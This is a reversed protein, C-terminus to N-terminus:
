RYHARPGFPHRAAGLGWLVLGLSILVIGCLWLVPAAFLFGLMLGIVGFVIMVVRRTGLMPSAM